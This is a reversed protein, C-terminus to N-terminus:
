SLELLRDFPHRWACVLNPRMCGAPCREQPHSAILIVPAFGSQHGKFPVIAPSNESATTPGFHIRM